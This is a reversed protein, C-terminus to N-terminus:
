TFLLTVTGKGKGKRVKKIKRGLDALLAPTFFSEIESSLDLLVRGSSAKRKTTPISKPKRPAPPCILPIKHEPSTPTRLGDSDDDYDNDVKFEGVSPLKIKLASLFNECKEQKEEQERAEVAEEQEQHLESEVFPQYESIPTSLFNCEMSNLDMKTTKKTVEKPNLKGM